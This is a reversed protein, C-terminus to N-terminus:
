WNLATLDYEPTAGRHTAVLSGLSNARQLCVPWDLNHLIGDILVAFFADGAGVTDVVDVPFGPHTFTGEPTLLIAGNAGRTVCLVELEFHTHVATLKELLSTASFNSWQVIVDLEDHNMKVVDALFLSELILAPTTFPPRLNVDCFAKEALKAYYRITERSRQDRQSLTGFVVMLRDDLLQTNGKIKEIADWAAPCVINYSPENDKFSVVVEGTSLKPDVQIFQDSLEMAALSAVSRKGRVDNGVRSLIRVNQGLRSLHYAVNLPAGGLIEQDKIIDWVIEGISLIM